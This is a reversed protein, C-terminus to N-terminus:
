NLVYLIISRTWWRMFKPEYRDALDHLPAGMQAIWLVANLMQRPDKPPRGGQKKPSPLM